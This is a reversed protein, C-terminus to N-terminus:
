RILMDTVSRGSLSFHYRFVASGIAGRQFQEFCFPRTMAEFELTVLTIVLWIM